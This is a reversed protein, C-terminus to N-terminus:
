RLTGLDLTKQDELLYRWGKLFGILDRMQHITINREFGEPMLSLGTPKFAEVDARDIIKKEGGAVQITVHDTTSSVLSGTMVTGDVRLIQFSIFGADVAANPDLIATLLSEPTKTRSDSIDPGVQIGLEGVQHCTACHQKFMAQGNELKAIGDLAPQYEAIVAIRDARASRFIAVARRAVEKDTCKSLRDAQSISVLTTPLQENEIMEILSAATVPQGVMQDIAVHRLAHPMTALQQIIWQTTQERDQQILWPLVKMRVVNDADDRLLRRFLKLRPVDLGTMVDIALIRNETGQGERRGPQPDQSKAQVTQESAIEAAVNGAQHIWQKVSDSAVTQLVKAPNRRAAQHGECWGAAFSIALSRDITANASESRLDGFANGYAAQRALVHIIPNSAANDTLRSHDVLCNHVVRAATSPPLTGWRRVWSAGTLDSSVIATLADHITDSNLKTSEDALWDGALAVADFQVWPDKDNLLTLLTKQRQRTNLFGTASQRILKIALRRVSPSSHSFAQTITQASLAKHAALLALARAFGEPNQDQNTQLTSRVKDIINNPAADILHMTALQRQTPNDHWLWHILADINNLPSDIRHTPKEQSSVIRWIRGRDNGWREDERNKLEKPVWNPHEIVARCMDVVYVSGDLGIALDVPRFWDNRSALFEQAGDIRDAVRGIPNALHHQPQQFRQRQVAYSTPECIVLDNKWDKPMATGLGVTVGCAASFQGDHVHSTTWAKAIPIVESDAGPKSIDHLADGPGSWRDGALDDLTFLTEIAPNRNSCGVRNLFDDVSMGFQSNGAVPGFFGGRPDFCFDTARLDIPEDGNKWKPDASRIRGGRLGNAITVLGDPGLTPHNARLQENDEAFGEFWTERQDCQLDGDTDAMYEIKGALTVIVGDRWPQLGTPFVLGKAFTTSSEFFGDHDRDTLIQIRGDFQSGQVPGTPYDRMEVVWMRGQSDFRIAIPDVVQPEHAAIEVRVGDQPVLAALSTEVSPGRSQNSIKVPEASAFGVWHLAALTM